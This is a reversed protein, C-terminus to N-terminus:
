MKFLKDLDYLYILEINRPDKKLKSVDYETPIQLGKEEAKKKVKSKKESIYRSWTKMAERLTLIKKALVMWRRPIIYGDSYLEFYNSEIIDLYGFAKTLYIDALFVDKKIMEDAIRLFNVLGVSTAQLNHLCYGDLFYPKNPYALKSLVTNIYHTLEIALPLAKLHTEKKKKNTSKERSM